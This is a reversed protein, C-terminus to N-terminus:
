MDDDQVEYPVNPWYFVTGHGLSDQRVESVEGTADDGDLIDGVYFMTEAFQKLCGRVSLCRKGGMGRGSYDGVSMGAFGAAEEVAEIFERM